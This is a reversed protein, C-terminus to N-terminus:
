QAIKKREYPQENELPNEKEPSLEASPPELFVLKDTFLEVLLSTMDAAAGSRDTKLRTVVSGQLAADRYARLDRIKSKAVSLGLTPAVQELQRSILDWTRMRNLVLRAEPRGNNIAQAEKLATSALLVSRLDLISPNIPVVALDALVLLARSREDLGAPADGVIFDHSRSLNQAKLAVEQPTDATEITIQPEVEAIWTSSSRQQDCDLLAVKAGRDFLGVAIHVALTSKGVGGKSNTICVLM